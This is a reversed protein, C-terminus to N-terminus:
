RIDFVSRAKLGKPNGSLVKVKREGKNMDFFNDSLILDGTEDYIEVYKAYAKSKVTIEDGNIEVSLNPDVFRFYKAKTFIV